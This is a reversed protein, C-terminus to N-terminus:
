EKELDCKLELVKEELFKVISLEGEFDMRHHKEYEPTSGILVHWAVFESIQKEDMGAQEIRKLIEDRFYTEKEFVYRNRAKENASLLMDTEDKSFEDSYDIEKEAKELLLEVIKRNLTRILIRLEGTAIEWRQREPDEINPKPIKEM